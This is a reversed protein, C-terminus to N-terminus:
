DGSAVDGLLTLALPRVFRVKYGETFREVSAGEGAQIQCITAELTEETCRFARVRLARGDEIVLSSFPELQKCLSVLRQPDIVLM